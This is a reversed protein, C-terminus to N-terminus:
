TATQLPRCAHVDASDNRGSRYSSDTSRGAHEVQTHLAAHLVRWADRTLNGIYAISSQSEVCDVADSDLAIGQPAQHSDTSTGGAPDIYFSDADDAPRFKM